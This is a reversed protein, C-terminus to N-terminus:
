LMQITSISLGTLKSIKEPSYISKLNRSVEKKSEERAEDIAEQEYKKNVFEFAEKFIEITEDTM